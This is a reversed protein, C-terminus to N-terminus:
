HYPSWRSRCEKGVRREESRSRAELTESDYDIFGRITAVSAPTKFADTLTTRPSLDAERSDVPNIMYQKIKNVDDATLAGKLVVCQAVKIAPRSGTLLQVCQAAFDGQQDYQGPLFEIAFVQEDAAVSLAQEAVNDVNPESLIM